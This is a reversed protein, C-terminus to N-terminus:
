RFRTKEPEALVAKYRKTMYRGPTKVWGRAPARDSLIPLFFIVVRVSRDYPREMADRAKKGFYNRRSEYKMM